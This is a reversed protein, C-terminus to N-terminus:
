IFIYFYHPFTSFSLSLCNATDDWSDESIQFIIPDELNEINLYEYEFEGKQMLGIEAIGSRLLAVSDTDHSTAMLTGKAPFDLSTNGMSINEANEVQNSRLSVLALQSANTQSLLTLPLRISSRGGQVVAYDGEVQLATMVLISITISGFETNATISETSSGYLEILLNAAAHAYNKVDEQLSGM